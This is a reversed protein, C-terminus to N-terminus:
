SKNFKGPNYVETMSLSYLCNCKKCKLFWRYPGQTDFFIMKENCNPCDFWYFSDEITTGLVYGEM